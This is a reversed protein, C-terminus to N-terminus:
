DAGFRRHLRREVGGTARSWASRPAGIVITDCLHHDAERALRRAVRGRAVITVLAIDAPLHEQVERLQNSAILELDLQLPPFTWGFNSLSTPRSTVVSVVILCAHNRQAIQAAHWLAAASSPSGDYGVLLRRPVVVAEASRVSTSHRGNAITESARESGVLTPVAFLSGAVARMCANM